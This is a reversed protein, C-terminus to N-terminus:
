LLEIVGSKSLAGIHKNAIEGNKIVLLTPITMVGYKQALEMQEDVNIKGVKIDDREEAVEDVIPSLMQCPGCWDAYFDVLVPKESKLVEQEICNVMPALKSGGAHINYASTMIDGLWSISSAPGPVFGFFRPHNSDGRYQYVENMMEQVVENAPRGDKPIGLQKIKEAQGSPANWIVQQTHINHKELCFDHVFNKIEKELQASNLINESNIM